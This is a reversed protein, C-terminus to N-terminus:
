LRAPKKNKYCRLLTLLNKRAPTTPNYIYHWLLLSRKQNCERTSNLVTVKACPLLLRKGLVAKWASKWLSCTKKPFDIDESFRGEEMFRSSRREYRYKNVGKAVVFAYQGIAALHASKESVVPRVLARYADGTNEKM